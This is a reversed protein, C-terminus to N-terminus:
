GLVVSAAFSIMVVLCVHVFLHNCRELRLVSCKTKCYGVGVFCLEPPAWACEQVQEFLACMTSHLPDVAATYVYCGKEGPDM